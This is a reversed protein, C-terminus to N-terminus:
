ACPRDGITYRPCWEGTHSPKDSLGCPHATYTHTSIHTRTHTTSLLHTEQIARPAPRHLERLHRHWHHTGDVCVPLAPRSPSAPSGSTCCQWTWLHTALLGALAGVPDQAPPERPQLHQAEVEAPALDQHLENRLCPHLGGVLAHKALNTPTPPHRDIPTAESSHQGTIREHPSAKM